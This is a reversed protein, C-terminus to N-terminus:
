KDKAQEHRLLWRKRWLGGGYGVLRGDSGIIRHCPVIIGVPNLRNTHGVARVAKPRGVAKAIDRYSATRGYGVNLLEKWVRKQFPTGNLRLKVSFTRREGRFYEDLQRLCTKLIPSLSAGAPRKKRVFNVSLIERATGTIELLGIKSRYYARGINEM